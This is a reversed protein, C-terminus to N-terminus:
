PTGALEAIVEAIRDRAREMSGRAFLAIKVPYTNREYDAERPLYNLFGNCVDLVAITIGPFRARLDVQVDSYFEVPAGVMVSSGLRWAYIPLEFRDGDGLKERIALRREAREREFGDSATAAANRCEAISPLEAINLGVTRQLFAFAKDPQCAALRWRGLTAGSEERGAFEMRHGPPLMGALVSLAAYGLERGNQDAAEVEDEFSRRPTLDGDAGHLFTCIAGGTEREVLSRMAGVYDPSILRNGGGLSTPHAAYNVLTGLVKGGEDVVRGVTLTDDVVKSPNFGCVIEGSEPIVLDRDYALGCRGAAWTLTAKRMGKLAQMMVQRCAAAIKKRFPVILHGGPASARAPDTFPAGHSHSLHVILAGPPVNFENELKLRIGEEDTKSLWVMLDLTVLFVEQGGDRPAMAMCTAYLPSHLGDAIDHKACGWTRAYMGEPPNIEARAVGIRGQFENLAYPQIQFKEKM